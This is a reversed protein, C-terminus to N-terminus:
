QDGRRRCVKVEIQVPRNDEFITQVFEVDYESYGEVVANWADQVHNDFVDVKKFFCGEVAKENVDEGVCSLLSLSLILAAALALWERRKM